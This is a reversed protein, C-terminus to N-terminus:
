FIYTILIDSTEVEYVVISIALTLFSASSERVAVIGEWQSYPM